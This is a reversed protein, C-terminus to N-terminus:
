RQTIQIVISRDDTRALPDLNTTIRNTVTYLQGPEGGALWIVTTTGGNIVGQAPQDNAGLVTTLGDPVEWASEAITEGAELWDSWDLGYDLEADADKILLNGISAM